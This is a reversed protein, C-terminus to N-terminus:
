ESHSHSHSRAVTPSALVQYSLLSANLAVLSAELAFVRVKDKDCAGEGVEDLKQLLLRNRHQLDGLAGLAEALEKDRESLDSLAAALEQQEREREERMAKCANEAACLRSVLDQECALVGGRVEGELWVGFRQERGWWALDSTHPAQRPRAIPSQPREDDRKRRKEEIENEDGDEGGAGAQKWEERADLLLGLASAFARDWDSRTGVQAELVDGCGPAYARSLSISMDRVVHLCRLVQIRQDLLQECLDEVVDHAEADHQTAGAASLMQAHAHAHLLKHELDSRDQELAVIRERMTAMERMIEGEPESEGYWGANEDARNKLWGQLGQDPGSEVLRNRGQWDVAMEDEKEDQKQMVALRNAISDCVRVCVSNTLLRARVRRLGRRAREKREEGRGRV